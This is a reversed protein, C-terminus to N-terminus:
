ETSMATQVRHMELVTGQAKALEAMAINFDALAAAKQREAQAVAEQSNLKLQLYEPTLRGRIPETNILGRLAREEAEATETQKLLQDYASYVARVNEKVNIAVQGAVDQLNAAAQAKEMRRQRLEAERQRNGLPYEITLGVGYNTFEDDALGQQAELADSDFGQVGASAVLDLRPMKQQSAVKLNIDALEIRLRAQQVDPNHDMATKLAEIEDLKVQMATPATVPVIEPSSLLNAQPDSILRLLVDQIDSVRQEATILEAERRKLAAESQNIEVATVDIEQRAEVKQLTEVTSELLKRQIETETRLQTLQWYATIADVAVQEVRARFSIFAAKYNLVAIDVNALNVQRWADRLLPQRLEFTLMPQYWTNLREGTLNNWNRTGTWALSWESGLVTKQRVGTELTRTKSKSVFPEPAFPFGEDENNNPVNDRDYNASGFTTYDFASEARTIDEKSIEPNYSVVTIQPSNALTWVLVEEITLPLVTKGTRPDITTEITPESIDPLLTLVDLGEEGAREQAGKDMMRMQYAELREDEAAVAPRAFVLLSAVLAFARVFPTPSSRRDAFFSFLHLTHSHPM